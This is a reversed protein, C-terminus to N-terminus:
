SEEAEKWEISMTGSRPEASPVWRLSRVFRMASDDAGSSGSSDLLLVQSPVGWEDVVVFFESRLGTHDESRAFGDLAGSTVIRGDLGPSYFSLYPVCTGSVDLSPNMMSLIHFDPYQWMRWVQDAVTPLPVPPLFELPTDSSSLSPLTVGTEGIPGATVPDAWM